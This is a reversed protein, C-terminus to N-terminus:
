PQEEKDTKNNTAGFLELQDALHAQLEDIEYAQLYFQVSEWIEIGASRLDALEAKLQETEKKM